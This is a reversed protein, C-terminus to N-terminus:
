NMPFCETVSERNNVDGAAVFPSLGQSALSRCLGGIAKSPNVLPAGQPSRAGPRSDMSKAMPQQRLVRDLNPATPNVYVPVLAEHLAEVPRQSFAEEPMLIGLLHSEGGTFPGCFPHLPQGTKDCSQISFHGPQSAFLGRIGNLGLRQCM